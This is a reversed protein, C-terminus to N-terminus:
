GAGSERALNEEIIAVPDQLTGYDDFHELPVKVYVGQATFRTTEGCIGRASVLAVRGKEDDVRATIRVAEGLPMPSLYDITLSRTVAPVGIVWVLFGLVEDCAAAIAGGHTLGPGGIHREDFIVDAYVDDGLRYPQIHLSSPNETGCGM